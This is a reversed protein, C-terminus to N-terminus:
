EPLFVHDNNPQSAARGLSFGTLWAGSITFLLGPLHASRDPPGDAQYQGLPTFHFRPREYVAQNLCVIGLLLLMVGIVTGLVVAIRNRIVTGPTLGM